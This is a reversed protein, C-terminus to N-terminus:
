LLTGAPHQSPQSLFQPDPLVWQGLSPVPSLSSGLLSHQSILSLPCLEQGMGTEPPFSSAMQFHVGSSAAEATLQRAASM